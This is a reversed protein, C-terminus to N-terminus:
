RTAFRDKTKKKYAATKRRTESTSKAYRKGNKRKPYKAPM